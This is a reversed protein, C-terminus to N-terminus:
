LAAHRKTSHTIDGAFYITGVKLFKDLKKSWEDYVFSAKFDSEKLFDTLAIFYKEVDEKSWYTTFTNKAGFSLYLDRQELVDKVFDRTCFVDLFDKICNNEAVIIDYLCSFQKNNFRAYFEKPRM